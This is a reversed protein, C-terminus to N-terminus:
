SLRTILQSNESGFSCELLCITSHECNALCVTVCRTGKWLCMNEEVFGIIGDIKERQMQEKATILKTGMKSELQLISTENPRLM